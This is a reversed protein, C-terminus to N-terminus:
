SAAAILGILGGVIIVAATIVAILRSPIGNVKAWIDRHETANATSEKEVLDHTATTREDIRVVTECMKNFRDEDIAM